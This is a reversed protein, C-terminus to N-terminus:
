ITSKQSRNLIKSIQGQSLTILKAMTRQPIKVLIGAVILRVRPDPINRVYELRDSDRAMVDEILESLTETYSRQNTHDMIDTPISRERKTHNGNIIKEVYICPKPCTKYHACKQCDTKPNYSM